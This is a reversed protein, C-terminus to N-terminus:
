LRRKCVYLKSEVSFKSNKKRIELSFPYYYIKDLDVEGTAHTVEGDVMVVVEIEGETAEAVVEVAVILVVVVAGVVVIM